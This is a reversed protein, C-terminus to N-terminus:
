GETWGETSKEDDRNDQRPASLLLLRFQTPSVADHRRMQQITTVGVFVTDDSELQAACQCQVCNAEEVREKEKETRVCVCVCVRKDRRKRESWLTDLTQKWRNPVTHILFMLVAIPDQRQTCNNIVIVAVRRTAM